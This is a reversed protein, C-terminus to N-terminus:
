AAINALLMNMIEDDLWHDSLLITLTDMTTLSGLAHLPTGWSLTGMIERAAEGDKMSAADKMNKAIWEDSAQWMVRMKVAEVMDKWFQIAWLPLHSDKYWSDIISRRGDFWAQGFAADLKALWDVSPIPRTALCRLDTNPELQSYADEARPPLNMALFDNISMHCYRAQLIYGPTNDSPYKKSAGIWENEHWIISPEDDLDFLEEPPLPM